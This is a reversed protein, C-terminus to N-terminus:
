VYVFVMYELILVQVPEPFALRMQRLVGGRVRRKSLKRCLQLSFRLMIHDKNLYDPVRDQTSERGKEWVCVHTHRCVYVQEQLIAVKTDTNCYFVGCIELSATTMTQGGSVKSMKVLM